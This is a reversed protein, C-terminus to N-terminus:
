GRQLDFSAEPDDAVVRRLVEVQTLEQLEEVVEHRSQEDVREELEVLLFRFQHLQVPLDVFEGLHNCEESVVLPVELFAVNSM